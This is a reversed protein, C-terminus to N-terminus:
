LCRGTPPPDDLESVEILWILSSLWRNAQKNPFSHVIGNNSTSVSFWM